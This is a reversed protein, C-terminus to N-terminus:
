RSYQSLGNFFSQKNAKIYKPATEPECCFQASSQSKGYREAGECACGGNDVTEVSHYM